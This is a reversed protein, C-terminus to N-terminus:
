ELGVWREGRPGIEKKWVPARRKIEDVVYRCAEFAEGRHPGSCAAVFTVEGVSLQGLGHVLAVGGLPWRETAEEAIRRLVPEAMEVYANYELREVTGGDARVTGVFVVTGGAEPTAVAALAEEVSPRRGLAVHIAAGGGSVPPLLAVEDGEDLPHGPGEVVERNVAVNSRTLWANADLHRDSVARFADSSSAGDPLELTEERRGIREALGGFYRVRVKVGPGGLRRAM